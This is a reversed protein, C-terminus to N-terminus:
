KRETLMKRVKGEAWGLIITEKEERDAVNCANEELIKKKQYNVM